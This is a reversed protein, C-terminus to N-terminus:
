VLSDEFPLGEVQESAYPIVPKNLAFQFGEYSSISNTMIIAIWM